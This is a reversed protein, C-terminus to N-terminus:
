IHTLNTTPERGQESPKERPEGTKRTGWFFIEWGGVRGGGREGEFLLRANECSKMAAMNTNWLLSVAAMNTVLSIRHSNFVKRQYVTKQEM